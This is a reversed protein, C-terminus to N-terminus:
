RIRIWNWNKIWSKLHELIDKLFINVHRLDKYPKVKLLNFDYLLIVIYIILKVKTIKDKLKCGQDEAKTKDM